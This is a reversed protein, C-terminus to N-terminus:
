LDLKDHLAPAQWMDVKASRRGEIEGLVGSRRNIAAELVRFVRPAHVAKSYSAEVTLRGANGLRARLEGSNLLRSLSDVWEDDSRALLGNENHRIITSNVGVPACVTPIALGMFQLAKM